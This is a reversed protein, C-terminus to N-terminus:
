LVARSNQAANCTVECAREAWVASAASAANVLWAWENGNRKGSAALRVKLAPQGSLCMLPARNQSTPKRTMLPTFRSKVQHKACAAPSQLGALKRSRDLTFDSAHGWVRSTRPHFM